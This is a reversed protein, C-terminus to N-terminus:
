HCVETQAGVRSGPLMGTPSQKVMSALRGVGEAFVLFEERQFHLTVSGSTVHLRGCGCMVLKIPGNNRGLNDM